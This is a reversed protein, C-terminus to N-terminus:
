LGSDPTEYKKLDNLYSSSAEDGELLTLLKSM